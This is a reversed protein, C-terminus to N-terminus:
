AGPIPHVQGARVSMAEDSTVARVGIDGIGGLAPDSALPQSRPPAPDSEERAFTHRRTEAPALPSLEQRLCRGGWEARATLM